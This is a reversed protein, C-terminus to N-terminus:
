GGRTEPPASDGAVAPGPLTFYFTAGADTEGEAWITGGHRHVIRQVTALGIGHGPFDKESHLRQFPDFIRHAYAPNFGVGNDGVFFAPQGAGALCGAEIRAHERPRTFKWANGILNDMVTRLMRPDGRVPLPGDIVVEVERDPEATGLLDISSQALAALDVPERVLDARTIRSLTLLGDILDGMRVSATAIRNLYHQGEADLVDGYDELLAHSYGHMARLPQRLDHSVSYAFSSLERNAADLRVVLSRLVLTQAERESLDRHIVSAGIIEGTESRLPSVSVSVPVQSGDRRLRVTEFGHIGQGRGVTALLDALEDRREPPIVREISQGVMEDESYGYLAAAAANWELVIGDLTKAVIADESSEVIAALRSRRREAVYRARMDMLTIVIEEVSGSGGPVRVADLQVDMWRNRLPDHLSIHAGRIPMSPVLDQIWTQEAGATSTEDASFLKLGLGRVTRDLIDAPSRGLIRAAVDNCYRIVGDSRLILTGVDVPHTLLHKLAPDAIM